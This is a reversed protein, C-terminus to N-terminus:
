CLKRVRGDQDLLRARGPSWHSSRCYWYVFLYYLLPWLGRPSNPSGTEKRLLSHPLWLFQSLVPIRLDAALKWTPWHVIVPVPHCHPHPCWPIVLFLPNLCFLLSSPFSSTIPIATLGDERGGSIHTNFTSAGPDTTCYAQIEWGIEQSTLHSTGLSAWRILGDTELSNVTKPPGLSKFPFM